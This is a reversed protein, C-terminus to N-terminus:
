DLMNTATFYVLRYPNHTDAPTGGPAAACCEPAGTGCMPAGGVPTGGVPAGGTGASGCLPAGGTGCVPTGGVPTGGVPTGGEPTGAAPTIGTGGEPMASGPTGGAGHVPTGAAAGIPTGGTGGVPTGDTGGVSTGCVPTGGMSIGGVASVASGGKGVPLGGMPTEAMPPTPVVSVCTIGSPVNTPVNHGAMNGGPETAAGSPVASPGILEVQPDSHGGATGGSVILSSGDEPLPAGTPTGGTAVM